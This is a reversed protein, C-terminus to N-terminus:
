FDREAKLANHSFWTHVHAVITVNAYSSYKNGSTLSDHMDLTMKYSREGWVRNAIARAGEELDVLTTGQVDFDYQISSIVQDLEPEPEAVFAAIPDTENEDTDPM